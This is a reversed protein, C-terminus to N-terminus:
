GALVASCRISATSRVPGTRQAPPLGRPELRGGGTLPLGTAVVMMSSRVHRRLSMPQAGVVGNMEGGRGRCATLDAARDEERRPIPRQFPRGLPFPELNQ